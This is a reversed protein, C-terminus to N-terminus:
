LFCLGIGILGCLWIAVYSLTEWFELDRHDTSHLALWRRPEASPVADESRVARAFAVSVVTEDVGQIRGGVNSDACITAARPSHEPTSGVRGCCDGCPRAVWSEGVRTAAARQQAGPRACETQSRSPRAMFLPPVIENSHVNM